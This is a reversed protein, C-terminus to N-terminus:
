ISNRAYFLAESNSSLEFTVSANAMSMSRAGGPVWGQGYALISSLLSVIIFISKM